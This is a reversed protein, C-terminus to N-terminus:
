DAKRALSEKFRYSKGNMELLHCHHTLRDLLAVTMAPDQFITQWQEFPLNTTVITSKREYRNAFVSFLLKVGNEDLALYGLEDVILLDLQNLRHEVRSLRCQSQAELLLNVLEAATYFGVRKAQACAEMGLAIALHSKGTGSNGLLVINEAKGLYGGLALKLVLAKNLNPLATFDFQSLNKQVPFRAQQIRNKRTNEERNQMEQAMLAVLFQEHTLNHQAAETALRRYQKAVAPLRLAKLYTELIVAQPQNQTM